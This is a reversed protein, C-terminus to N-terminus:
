MNKWQEFQRFYELRVRTLEHRYIKIRRFGHQNSVLLKNEELYNSLSRIVLREFIKCTVSTLSIPRYSSDLLRDGKGEYLAIVKAVKWQDPVSGSLLSQQFITLLPSALVSAFKKYIVAPVGDPGPASNPLARLVSLLAQLSLNVQFDSEKASCVDITIASQPAFNRLFERFLEDCITVDNDIIKGNESRLTIKKGDPKLHSSMYYFFQQPRRRFLADESQAHNFKIRASLRDSAVKYRVKNRESPNRKYTRWCRKKRLFLARQSRAVHVSRPVSSSSCSNIAETKLVSYFTQWM